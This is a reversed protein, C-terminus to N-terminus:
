FFDLCMFVQGDAMKSRLETAAANITCGFPEPLIGDIRVRSGHKKWTGAAGKWVKWGKSALLLTQVRSIWVAHVGYPEM